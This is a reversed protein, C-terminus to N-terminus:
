LPMNLRPSMRAECVNHRGPVSEFQRGGAHCAPTSVSQVVPGSLHHFTCPEFRHGRAQLALARGASSVKWEVCAARAAGCREAVDINYDPRGWFDLMKKLFRLCIKARGFLKTKQGIEPFKCRRTTISGSAQLSLSRYAIMARAPARPRPSACRM